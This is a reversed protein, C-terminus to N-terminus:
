MVFSFTGSQHIDCDHGAVLQETVVGKLSLALSGDTPSMMGDLLFLGGSSESGCWLHGDANIGGTCPLEHYNGRVRGLSVSGNDALVDLLWWNSFPFDTCTGARCSCTSPDAVGKLTYIGSHAQGQADGLPLNTVDHPTLLAAAGDPTGSTAAGSSCGGMLFGLGFVAYSWALNARM